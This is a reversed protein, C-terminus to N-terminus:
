GEAGEVSAVYEFLVRKGSMYIKIGARYSDGPLLTDRAGFDEKRTSDDDDSM